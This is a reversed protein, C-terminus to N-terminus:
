LSGLISRIEEPSLHDPQVGEALYIAKVFIRRMLREAIDATAERGADDGDLLLVAKSFSSTIIEEQVDSLSSGILAVSSPYGHTSVHICPFFGEVIVVCDSGSAIARHLNWLELTKVFGAPMKYKPDSGDISRGAYALLKGERSEIPIVIKGHMTGRGSYFGVGFREAIEKSIGREALYPHAHDIGKLTFGLPKNHTPNEPSAEEGKRGAVLKEKEPERIPSARAVGETQFPLLFWNALKLAADRITCQEMTATFDLVNGGRRGERAAVCSASQCAWINKTTNVGFSEGKSRHMPLPCPGRVSNENVRRLHIHYRNLVMEMSVQQKVLAFDVFASSM